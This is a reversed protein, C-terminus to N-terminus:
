KGHGLGERVEDGVEDEPEGKELTTALLGPWSASWVQRSTQFIQPSMKGSWDSESAFFDQLGSSKKKVLSDYQHLWEVPAVKSKWSQLQRRTYRRQSCWPLTWTGMHLYLYLYLYRFYVLFPNGIMLNMSCASLDYDTWSAWESRKLQLCSHCLVAIPNHLRINKARSM